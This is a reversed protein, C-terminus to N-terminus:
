VFCVSANTSSVRSYSPVSRIVEYIIRWEDGKLHLQTVSNAEDANSPDQM